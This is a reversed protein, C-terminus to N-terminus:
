QPVDLILYFTKDPLCGEETNHKVCFIKYGKDLYDQVRSHTSEDTERSAGKGASYTWRTSVVILKQTM